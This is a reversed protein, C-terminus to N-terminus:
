QVEDFRRIKLDDPKYADGGETVGIGGDELCAANDPKRVVDAPGSIDHATWGADTQELWAVWSEGVQSLAFTMVLDPRADGDVACIAASHFDGVASPYPIPVGAAFAYPDQTGRRLWLQTRNGDVIDPHADGDILGYAGMGADGPIKFIWHHEWAAGTVRQHIWSGRGLGKATRDTVYLGVPTCQVTMAWGAAAIPEWAYGGAATADQVTFRGFWAPATVVGNQIVAEGGTYLAPGDGLDCWALQMFRQLGDSAAITFHLGSGDVFDANVRRSSESASFAVDDSGDGDLDVLIADEAGNNDGVISYGSGDEHFYVIDGSQACGAVAMGNKGRKWGDAGICSPPAAVTSMQWPDGTLALDDVGLDTCGVLVVLLAAIRV